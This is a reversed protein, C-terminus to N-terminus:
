PNERHIFLRFLHNIVRPHALRAPYATGLHHAILSLRHPISHVHM